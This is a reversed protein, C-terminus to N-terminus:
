SVEINGRIETNWSEYCIVGFNQPLSIEYIIINVGIIKIKM